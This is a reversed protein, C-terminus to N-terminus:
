RTRWFRAEQPIGDKTKGRYRFTVVTGRPFLSSTIRDPVEQGPHESCWEPDSLVREADTFGSLELRKGKYNLIMAGMLGLLKSGRDTRRGSIYGTVVGEDDDFKKVKLLNHSRCTEWYSEPKRLMVGEGGADTIAALREEMVQLAADTGFPLQEQPHMFEPCYREMLAVEQQFNILPHPLYDLSSLDPQVSKFIREFNPTSLRGDEFIAESPLSFVHYNVDEWGPGPTLRKVIKMLEQRHDPIYLEGDMMVKPLRDLWWDPAHIVNGYRSWLGTSIQVDVYRDDKATNAWAVKSKELGRTIGGDWFCRMGDLKESLFWGGIRHKKPKFVHALMLFERRKM